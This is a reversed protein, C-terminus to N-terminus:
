SEARLYPVFQKMVDLNARLEDGEIVVFEHVRLFNLDRSLTKATVRRHLHDIDLFIDLSGHGETASRGTQWLSWGTSNELRTDAM